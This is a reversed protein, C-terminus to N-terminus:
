KSLEDIESFRQVGEVGPNGIARVAATSLAQVTVPRDVFPLGLRNGVYFAGVPPLSLVRDLSYILSPRFIVPRLLEVTQYELLRSEVKRKAALYRRLWNPALRREVFSGGRVESWGAEAASTFIFPIRRGDKKAYTETASIAHFATLRSIEDYTSSSDEPRSGSGSAFRNFRGLRSDADFLLGICHVVAVFPEGNGRTSTDDGDGDRDGDGENLVKEITKLDRADGIRYDIKDCISNGEPPKGRRSISTVAYGERIARSAISEGLFGSGGLILIRGRAGGKKAFVNRTSTDTDDENDNSSSMKTILILAAGNTTRANTTIAPPLVVTPVFANCSYSFIIITLVLQLLMLRTLPLRQYDYRYRYRYNFGM